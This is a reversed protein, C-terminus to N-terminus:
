STLAVIFRQQYGAASQMRVQNGFADYSYQTGKQRLLRDGEVSIRGEESEPNAFSDFTYSERQEASLSGSLQDLQDFSFECAGQESDEIGVLQNGKNYYYCRQHEEKAQLWKQESIRGQADFQQSLSVNNNQQRGTERGCADFHYRVLPERNWDIASLLGQENYRYRIQQGDPLRSGVRRGAADYQHQLFWNDQFIEFLQGNTHYSISVKREANNAFRIRGLKDYSFYNTQASDKQCGFRQEIVRGCLDRKLRVSRGGHEELSVIQGQGNYKYNQIRGDFGVTKSIREEGDYELEYSNGDSRVISTLNREKDYQFALWSGDPREIRVPQSLGEYYFHLNRGLADSISIMRGASDYEFLQTASDDPQAEHYRTVSSVLGQNNRSYQTVWGDANISGNVEGLESYSYRTVAERDRFATLQGQENWWFHQQRDNEEQIHILWGHRDYEFKTSVGDPGTRSLLRGFSNYESRWVRKEGDTIQIVQGLRNYRYTTVANDATEVASLQGHYNYRYQTIAGDPTIEAVKRLLSDYSFRWVNGEPSIKRSLLGQPTHEYRWQNGM